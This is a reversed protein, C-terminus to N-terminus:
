DENLMDLIPSKVTNEDDEEDEGVDKTSAISVISEVVVQM